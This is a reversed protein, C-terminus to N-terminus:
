MRRLFNCVGELAIKHGEGLFLSTVTLVMYQLAKNLHHESHTHPPAFSKQLDVLPPAYSKQLDIFPPAFLLRLGFIINRVM